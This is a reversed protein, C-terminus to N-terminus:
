FEVKVDARQAETAEFFLKSELKMNTAAVNAPWTKLTANYISVNANYIRRSAAIDQEVENIAKELEVVAQTAKLDPYAELQVNLTKSLNDMMANAQNQQEVSSTNFKTNRLNVIQTQTEKEFKMTGKVADILKTLTDKRRTLQVDIGSSSEFIKVETKRFWNIKIVYWIAPLILIFSVYFFIKGGISASAPEQKNFKEM